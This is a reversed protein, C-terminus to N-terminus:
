LFLGKLAMSLRYIACRYINQTLDRQQVSLEMVQGGVEELRQTIADMRGDMRRRSERQEASLDEIKSLVEQMGVVQLEREGANRNDAEDVSETNRRDTYYDQHQTDNNDGEGGAAEACVRAQEPQSEDDSDLVDGNNNHIGSSVANIQKIWTDRIHFSPVRCVYTLVLPLILAHSSYHCYYYRVYHISYASTRPVTKVTTTHM